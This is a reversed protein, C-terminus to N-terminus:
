AGANNSTYSVYYSLLLGLGWKGPLEAPLSDTQLAPSQNTSEQTPFIGQLLSLSSVGTKMPVGHHSPHYLIWKCHLFGPNLGQTPFIGRFFPFAVWALIRAQLIGHVTCDMLDCLTPGSQAVKVKMIFSYIYIIFLTARLIAPGVTEPYVSCLCLLFM